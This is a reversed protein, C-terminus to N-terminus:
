FCSTRAEALILASNHSDGAVEELISRFHRCAVPVEPAAEAPTAVGVEAEVGHAEEPEVGAAGPCGAEDVSFNRVVVILGLHNEVMVVGGRARCFTFLVLNTVKNVFLCSDNFSVNKKKQEVNLRHNSRLLIPKHKLCEQASAETEFVVFGFNPVKMQGPALNKSQTVGKSSIRVEAIQFSIDNDITGDIDTITEKTVKGYSAFVESLESESCNHPVNGVFLQHSDPYSNLAADRSLSGGLSM